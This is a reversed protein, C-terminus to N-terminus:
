EPLMKGQKLTDIVKSQMDYTLVLCYNKELWEGVQKYAESQGAEFARLAVEDAFDLMKLLTRCEPLEVGKRIATATEKDEMDSRGDGGNFEGACGSNM